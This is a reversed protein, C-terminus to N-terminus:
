DSSDSLSVTTKCFSWFVCGEYWDAWVLFKDNLILGLGELAWSLFMKLAELIETELDRLM